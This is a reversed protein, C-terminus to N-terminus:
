KCDGIRRGKLHQKMKMGPMVVDIRGEFAAGSYTIRGKGTMEGQGTICRMSWTVTDGSTRVDRIECDGSSGSTQPGRPVYDDRTLCQTHVFEQRPMNSPMGDMEIKTTLEWMGEQINPESADASAPVTMISIFALATIFFLIGKKM